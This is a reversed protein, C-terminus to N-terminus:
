VILVQNEGSSKQVKRSADLRGSQLSDCLWQWPSSTLLAFLKNSHYMKEDFISDNIIFYQLVDFLVKSWSRRYKEEVSLSAIAKLGPNFIKKDLLMILARTIKSM